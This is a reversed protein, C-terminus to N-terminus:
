EVGKAFLSLTVAATGVVVMFVGIDFLLTTSLHYDGEPLPLYAHYHTLFPDGALM